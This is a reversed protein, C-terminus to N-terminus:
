KNTDTGEWVELPEAKITSHLDENYSKIMFQLDNVAESMTMGQALRDRFDDRLTRNFREVIPNKMYMYTQPTSYHPRINQESLYAKFARNTFENGEDMTVHKPVKGRELIKKFANLVSTQGKGGSKAMRWPTGPKHNKPKPDQKILESWARRSHVDIVNLVGSWRQPGVVNGFFMLDIQYVDGSKTARISTFM